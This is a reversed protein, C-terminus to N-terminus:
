QFPASRHAAKDHQRHRTRHQQGEEYRRRRGVGLLAGASEVVQFRAERQRPRVGVKFACCAVPCPNELACWRSACAAMVAANCRSFKRTVNRGVRGALSAVHAGGAEQARFVIVRADGRATCTAVVSSGCGAFRGAMHLGVRGTFSAVLAGGTEHARLEIM